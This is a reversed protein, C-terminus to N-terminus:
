GEVLEPKRRAGVARAMRAHEPGPAADRAWAAMAAQEGPSMGEPPDGAIALSVALVLALTPAFFATWLFRHAM